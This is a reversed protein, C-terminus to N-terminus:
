YPVFFMNQLLLLLKISEGPRAWGHYDATTENNEKLGQQEDVKVKNNCILYLLNAHCRVTTPGPTVLYLPPALYPTSEVHM